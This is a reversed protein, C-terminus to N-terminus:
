NNFRGRDHPADFDVDPGVPVILTPNITDHSGFYHRKTHDLNLTDRVGPQQYIDLVYNWLNPYDHIRRINCKFHTFYVADFRWLTTFLCIDAETLENGCLYRQQSLIDECRDLGEFVEYVAEEYAKQSTAFGSRYVGNNIPEYNATIMEDISEVLEPPALDRDNAVGTFEHDFMRIIDRSENNVITNHKKDWLIPVTVRGTYHSDAAKYVERLYTAGHIPDPINAPDADNFWWGEDGMFPDVVSIDIADTLGKFHRMLLTRHAWPCAYAVYLHYRGAEPAFDTSGDARVWDHFVTDPRVFRGDDDPQYWETTWNGDVMRGM